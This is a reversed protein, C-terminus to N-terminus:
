YYITSVFKLIVLKPQFPDNSDLLEIEFPIEEQYYRGPLISLKLKYYCADEFKVIVDMKMSKFKSSLDCPRM